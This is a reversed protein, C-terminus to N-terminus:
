VAPPGPGEIIPISSPGFVFLGDLVPEPDGSWDLARVQDHTRRGLSVRFFEFPTTRLTLNAGDLPGTSVDVDGAIVRLHVAVDLRDVLLPVALALLEDDRAGPRDLAHRIDHEHTLVDIAGPWIKLQDIVEEFPPASASWSELLAGPDDGRHRDVQEASQADDPPGSLRGAIADEVVGALHAIVDRVRWGPCTDVPRNWDATEVNGLLETLRKRSRAYHPGPGSLAAASPAPVTPM